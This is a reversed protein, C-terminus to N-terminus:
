HLACLQLLQKSKMLKLRIIFLDSFLNREHREASRSAYLVCLLLSLSTAAKLFYDVTVISSSVDKWRLAYSIILLLIAACLYGLMTSFRLQYVVQAVVFFFLFFYLVGFATAYRSSPGSSKALVFWATVLVLNCIASIPVLRNHFLLEKSFSTERLFLFKSIASFLSLMGLMMFLGPNSPLSSPASTPNSKGQPVVPRLAISGMLPFLEILGIVIFFLSSFFIPYLIRGKHQLTRWVIFGRELKRSQLFTMSVRSTRFFDEFSLQIRGTESYRVLLRDAISSRLLADIPDLDQEM